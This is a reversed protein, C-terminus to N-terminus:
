NTVTFDLYKDAQQYYGYKQGCVSDIRQLSCYLSVQLRYTNAQVPVDLHWMNANPEYTANGSWVGVNDVSFLRAQVNFGNSPGAFTGNAETAELNIKMTDGVVYSDKAGLITKILFPKNERPLLSVKSGVTFEDSLYKFKGGYDMVEIQYTGPYITLNNPINYILMGERSATDGLSERRYIQMSEKKVPDLLIIKATSVDILEPNWIVTMADGLMYVDGYKPFTIVPLGTREEINDVNLYPAPGPPATETSIPNTGSVNHSVKVSTLIRAFFEEVRTPPIIGPLNLYINSNSIINGFETAIRQDVILTKTPSITFYYTNKGCGEVAQMVKYGHLSGLSYPNASVYDWTPFSQSKIFDELNSDILTFSVDFDSLRELSPADGRFDCPDTHKYVISHKLYVFEGKNTVSIIEPYEFSISKDSYTKWVPNDISATVFASSSSTTTIDDIRVSDPLKEDSAKYNSYYYFGGGLAVLIVIGIVALIAPNIQSNKM